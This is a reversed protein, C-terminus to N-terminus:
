ALIDYENATLEIEQGAVEVLRYELCFHLFETDVITLPDNNIWSNNANQEEM